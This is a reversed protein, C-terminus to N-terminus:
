RVRGGRALPASLDLSLEDVALGGQTNRTGTVGFGLGQYFGSANGEGHQASVHIEAKGQHKAQQHVKELLKSGIGAGQVDPDIVLKGLTTFDKGDRHSAQTFGVIRGATDEAVLLQVTKDGAEQRTMQAEWQAYSPPSLPSQDNARAHRRAKNYLDRIGNEGAERIDDPLAARIRIPPPNAAM